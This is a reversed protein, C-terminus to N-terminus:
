KKTITLTFCLWDLEIAKASLITKVPIFDWRGIYIRLTLSKMQNSKLACSIEGRHM